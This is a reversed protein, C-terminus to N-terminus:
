YVQDPAYAFGTLRGVSGNPASPQGPGRFRGISCTGHKIRDLTPVCQDPPFYGLSAKNLPRLMWSSETLSVDTPSVDVRLVAQNYFMNSQSM